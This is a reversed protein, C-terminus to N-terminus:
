YFKYLDFYINLTKQFINEANYNREVEARAASSLRDRLCEDDLLVTLLDALNHFDGPKFLLGNEGNRVVDSIGPINSAVVCNRYAMAELLAISMGEALSPLVFIDSLSYISSLQESSLTGLFYINKLNLRKVQEQLQGKVNPHGPLESGAILLACDRKLLNMADLLYHIGKRLILGGVYLIVIKDELGYQQKLKKKGNDFKIKNLDIGNPIITLRESPAGLKRLMEAQSPSLAIIKDVLKLMSRAIFFDYFESMFSMYGSLPATGHSTLIIPNRKWMNAFVIANSSFHLHSHIHVIDFDNERIYRILIRPIIQNNLPSGISNFRYIKVSKILEYNITKPLNSAFVTVDHGHNALRECLDQVHSEIGGIHPTYLPSVQLIKM